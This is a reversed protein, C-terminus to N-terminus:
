LLAKTGHINNFYYDIRDGLIQQSDSPKIAPLIPAKLGGLAYLQQNTIVRAEDWIGQEIFQQITHAGGEVLISLVKNEYLYRLMEELLNEKTTKLWQIPGKQATKLTNFVIVPSQDFLQLTSPLELHPDIILKIPAKGKWLRNNLQPNDKLATTKGILLAAEETRWKHVLRNTVPGSILLRENENKGSIFGDASAAWKLLIYPRKKDHFKFFRKNITAAGNNLIDTVVEVGAKRLLEVGTGNVLPFPDRSAIVVKKIENELILSTCPPTKGFHSCPELSVYLTAHKILSRDEAKVSQICNVEAHPGGFNRHFGEGIIRNEHVLVAGVMPNPAVEGAGLSALQLCRQM